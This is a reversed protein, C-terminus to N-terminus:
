LHTAEKRIEFWEAPTGKFCERGQKLLEKAVANKRFFDQPDIHYTKYPQGPKNVQAEMHTAIKLKKYEDFLAECYMEQESLGMSAEFYKRYEAINHTVGIDGGSVWFIDPIYRIKKETGKEDRILFFLDEGPRGSIKLGHVKNGPVYDSSAARTSGTQERVALNFEFLHDSLSPQLEARFYKEGVPTNYFIWSITM